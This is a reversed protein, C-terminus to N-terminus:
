YQVDPVKDLLWRSVLMIPVTIISFFLGTAAVYNLNTRDKVQEFIWYSLTQTGYDGQTFFLIAGSYTFIDPLATLIVMALFPWILPLYISVIERLWGVGDLQGAELVEPPIRKMSSAFLLFGAGFGSWLSYFLLSWIAYRSDGFLNPFSMGASYFFSALVGSGDPATIYKFLTAMILGPLVNPLYLIIRFVKHGTIKKSFFYGVM